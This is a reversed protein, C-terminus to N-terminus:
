GKRNVHCNGRETCCVRALKHIVAGRKLKNKKRMGCADRSGESSPTTKSGTGLVRNLVVSETLKNTSHIM